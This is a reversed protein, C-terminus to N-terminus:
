GAAPSVAEEQTAAGASPGGRLPIEKIFVALWCAVAMGVGGLMPYIKYKGAADLARGVFLSVVM